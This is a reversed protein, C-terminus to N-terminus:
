HAQTQDRRHAGAGPPRTGAAAGVALQVIRVPAGNFQADYLIESDAAGAVGPQPQPISAGEIHRGDASAIEFEITDAPDAFLLKRAAEPLELTLAGDRSGLHLSVDRAIEILARDYARQAFKLAAWYSVFADAILLLSLPILLWGLLQRRLLPPDDPM